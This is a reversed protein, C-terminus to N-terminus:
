MTTHCADNSMCSLVYVARCAHCSVRKYSLYIRSLECSLTSMIVRCVDCSVHCSMTTFHMVRCVHCSMTNETMVRCGTTHRVVYMARCLLVRCPVVGGMVHCSVTRPPTTGHLPPHRALALQLFGTTCHITGHRTTRHPMDHWTHSMDQWAAPPTTGHLPPCTTGHVFWTTRHPTDHWTDHPSPHRAM